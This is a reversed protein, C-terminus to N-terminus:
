QGREVLFAGAQGQAELRKIVRPKGLVKLLAEGHQKLEGQRGLSYVIWFRKEPISAAPTFGVVVKGPPHPWYCLLEVNRGSPRLPEKADGFLYIPEDPKRIPRLQKVLPRM